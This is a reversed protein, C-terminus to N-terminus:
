TTKSENEKKVVNIFDCSKDCYSYPQQRALGAYGQPQTCGILIVIPVCTRGLLLKASLECKSCTFCARVPIYTNLLSNDSKKRGENSAFLIEPPARQRVILSIHILIVVRGYCFSQLWQPIVYKKNKRFKVEVQVAARM